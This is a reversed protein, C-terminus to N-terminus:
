LVFINQGSRTFNPSLANVEVYKVQWLVEPAISHGEKNGWNYSINENLCKFDCDEFIFIESWLYPQPINIASENDPKM